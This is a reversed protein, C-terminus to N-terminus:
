DNLLNSRNMFLLQALKFDFETDVDISKFDSVKYFFPNKSIVYRNKVMEGKTTIFLAGTISYYKDLFQSYKHWPGWSYNLPQGKESVIFDNVQCVSVLGDFGDKLSKKYDKIAQEYEDFLPSTTHCWCLVTDDKEPISEAVHAIVDSWPMQNNCFKKDREIFSCGKREVFDKINKADSSVYIKDIVKSEVLKSLLIDFLSRGDIFDRFNKSEVRESVAKVPIVAVIKM